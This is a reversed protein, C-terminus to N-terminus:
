HKYTDIITILSTSKEITSPAVVVENLPIKSGYRENLIYKVKPNTLDFDKLYETKSIEINAAKYIKWVLESCYIKDNNWEFYIDYDKHLLSMGFTKMKLLNDKNLQLSDKYRKVVYNGNKGRNIWDQLESIQVPQIAELVMLRGNEKFLIGCHSFKSKTALRVAECQKSESTQFIIDGEKLEQKPKSDKNPIFVKQTIKLAFYFSLAFTLVAYIIKMKKM